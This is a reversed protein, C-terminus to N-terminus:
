EDLYLDFTNDSIHAYDATETYANHSCIVMTDYDVNDIFTSAVNIEYKM